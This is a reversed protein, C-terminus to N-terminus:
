RWSGPLCMNGEADLLIMAVGRGDGDMGLTSWIVVHRGDEAMAMEGGTQDYRVLTNLLRHPGLPECDASYARYAVGWGYGDEDESIWTAIFSGDPRTAVASPYISSDSTAPEGVTFSPVLPDGEWDFCRGQVRDEDTGTDVTHWLLVISSDNRVAAHPSGKDPEGPDTLLVTPAMTLGDHGFTRRFVGAPLGASRVLTFGTGPGDLLVPYGGPLSDIESAPEEIDYPAGSADFARIMTTDVPAGLGLNHVWSVVFEGDDNMAVAPAGQNEEWISNARLEDGVPTGDAAYLQGFIGGYEGDQDRSEWVVIFRGDAAMDVEPSDQTGETYTNVQFEDGAPMGTSDFRQGFIGTDSGDQLESIWVVVFRGDAGAAVKPNYQSRSTCTNVIVEGLQCETCGDWDTDNADDCTEGADLAGNGCNGEGSCMTGDLFCDATCLLVGGSYGLDECSLGGLDEGDCQEDEDLIGDGCGSVPEDHGIDTSPELVEDDTADERGTIGIGHQCSCGALHLAILMLSIIKATGM